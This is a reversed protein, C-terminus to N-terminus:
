FPCLTYLAQTGERPEMQPSEHLNRQVSNGQRGFSRMLYLPM